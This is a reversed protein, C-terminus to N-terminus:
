IYSAMRAPFNCASPNQFGWSLCVWISNWDVGLNIWFQMVSFRSYHWTINDRGAKNMRTVIYMWRREMKKPVMLPQQNLMILGSVECTKVMKKGCFPYLLAQTNNVFVMFDMDGHVTLDRKSSDVCDAGWWTEKPSSGPLSGDHLGVDKEGLWCKRRPVIWCFRFFFFWSLHFICGQFQKCHLIPVRFIPKIGRQQIITLRFHWNAYHFYSRLCGHDRGNKTLDDHCWSMVGHKGRTEWGFHALAGFCRHLNVLFDDTTNTGQFARVHLAMGPGFFSALFTDESCWPSSVSPDHLWKNGSAWTSGHTQSTWWSAPMPCLRWHPSQNQNATVLHILQFHYGWCFVGGSNLAQVLSKSINRPESSVFRLDVFIDHSDNWDLHHITPICSAETDCFRACTGPHHSAFNCVVVIDHFLWAIASRDKWQYSILWRPLHNRSHRPSPNMIHFQTPNNMNLILNSFVVDCWTPSPAHIMPIISYICNTFM